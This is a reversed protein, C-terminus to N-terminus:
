CVAVLYKRPPSVGSVNYCLLPQVL